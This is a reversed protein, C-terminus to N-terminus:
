ATALEQFDLGLASKIAKLWTAYLDQRFKAINAPMNGSPERVEKRALQMFPIQLINLLRDLPMAGLGYGPGQSSIINQIWTAAFGLVDPSRIHRFIRIQFASAEELLRGSTAPDDSLCAEVIELIGTAGAANMEIDYAATETCLLLQLCELFICIILLCISYTTSEDCCRAMVVEEM